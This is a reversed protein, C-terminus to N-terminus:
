AEEIRDLYIGALTCFEVDGRGLADYIEVLVRGLGDDDPAFQEHGRKGAPSANPEPQPM